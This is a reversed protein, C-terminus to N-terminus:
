HVLAADFLKHHFVDGTKLGLKKARGGAIELAAKTPAGSPISTLDEPQANEHISIIAGKEDVFIIDLPILTDKMWFSRNEVTDFVFLMGKDDDLSTRNMLGTMQQDTTVALEVTLTIDRHSPGTITLPSVELGSQPMAHATGSALGPDALAIAPILGLLITALLIPFKM